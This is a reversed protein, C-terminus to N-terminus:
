RGWQRRDTGAIKASFALAIEHCVHYRDPFSSNGNMTLVFILSPYM